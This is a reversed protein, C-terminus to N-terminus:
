TRAADRLARKETLFEGLARKQQPQPELGIYDFLGYIAAVVQEKTMGDELQVMKENQPFVHLLFPRDRLINRAVVRDAVSM